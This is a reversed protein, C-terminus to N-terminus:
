FNRNTIVYTNSCLFNLINFDKTPFFSMIFNGFFFERVIRFFWSYFKKPGASCNCASEIVSRTSNNRCKRGTFKVTRNRLKRIITIKFSFFKISLEALVNSRFVPFTNRFCDPFFYFFTHLPNYDTVSSINHMM